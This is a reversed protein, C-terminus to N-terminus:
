RPQGAMQCAVMGGVPLVFSWGAPDEIRMRGQPILAGGVIDGRQAFELDLTIIRGRHEYVQQSFQGFVAGGGARSRMLDVTEGDLTMRAAGQNGRAVFVLPAQVKKIWLFTGCMGEPLTQPALTGVPNLAGDPGPPLGPIEASQAPASTQPAPANPAAIGPDPPSWVPAQQSQPAQPRTAQTQAQAPAQAPQGATGAAEPNAFVAMLADRDSARARDAERAGSGGGCATLLVLAGLVACIRMPGTLDVHRLTGTM